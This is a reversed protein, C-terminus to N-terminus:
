CDVRLEMRFAVCASDRRAGHHFWVGGSSGVQWRPSPAGPEPCCGDGLHLGFCPDQGGGGQMVEATDEELM